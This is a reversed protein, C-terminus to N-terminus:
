PRPISGKPITFTLPNSSGSLQEDESLAQVTVTLTAGQHLCEYYVLAYMTVNTKSTSYINGTATNVRYSVHGSSAPADWAIATLVGNADNVARLNTPASPASAAQARVQTVATDPAASAPSAALVSVASALALGVGLLLPSRGSTPLRGNKPM